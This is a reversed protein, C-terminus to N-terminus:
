ISRRIQDLFRSIEDVGNQPFCNTQNITFGKELRDRIYAPYRAGYAADESLIRIQEYIYNVAAEEPSQRFRDLSKKSLADTDWSLTCVERCVKEAIAANYFQSLNQPPLIVTPVDMGCTEYITTLGPSTIFLASSSVLQLFAEHSYTQCHLEPYHKETLRVANKGGAIQIRNKDFVSLLARMVILYYEEGEGFPSHLGGFNVVIQTTRPASTYRCVIPNIWILNQVKELVGNRFYGPYKQACYYDVNQPILDAETWVFPISDIYIVTLGLEKLIVALEPDLVNVACRIGHKEVFKGLDKRSKSCCIDRFPNHPYISLDIEDGCAYWEYQLNNEVVSCLKGGPGLGFGVACALVKM